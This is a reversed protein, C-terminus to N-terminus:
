GGGRVSALDNHANGHILLTLALAVGIFGTFFNLVAVERNQMYTPHNPPDVAPARPEGGGGGVSAPVPTAATAAQAQGILWIGNVVLVAGVYLLVVALLM